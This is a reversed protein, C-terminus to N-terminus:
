PKLILKQVRWNLLEAVYLENESPCAMEHIWGFQKLQKGSEGLVGLVKGDLSLKYIAARIPTPATSCRTRRRPTICIAWPAGPQMRARGTPAETRAQQRDGAARGAAGARRDHDACFSATATSCRSAATAATPSMSTTRPTPPSAHAAHNFQGPENGPEGWSKLWNGDKDVKAVRSNIYGDSIYTNGATDWTVDTM